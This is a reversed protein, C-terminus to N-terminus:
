EKEGTPEALAAFVVVPQAVCRDLSGPTDCGCNYEHVQWLAEDKRALEAELADLVVLADERRGYKSPTNAFDILTQRITDAPTM